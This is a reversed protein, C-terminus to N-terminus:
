AYRYGLKAISLLSSVKVDFLPPPQLVEASNRPKARPHNTQWQAWLRDINAHHLFFIPDAPSSAGSMTGGVALHVNNHVQELVRQFSAFEGRSLAATVDAATPLFGADWRRTVSWSRLLTPKNFPAPLTPDAIWDWYPLRVTADVRQLSREIQLLFQRHWALFNTGLMGPMSHVSWPMGAPSMAQVHVDVFERYRPSPGIGHLANIAAILAQWEAATLDAQNKRTQAM